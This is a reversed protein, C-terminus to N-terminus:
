DATCPNSLTMGVRCVGSTSFCYLRSEATRVRGCALICGMICINVSNFHIPCHPGHLESELYTLEKVLLLSHTTKNAAALFRLFLQEIEKPTVAGHFVVVQLPKM